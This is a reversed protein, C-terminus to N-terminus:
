CLFYFCWTIEMRLQIHSMKTLCNQPYQDTNLCTLLDQSCVIPYMQASLTDRLRDTYALVKVCQVSLCFRKVSVQFWIAGFLNYALDVKFLEKRIM